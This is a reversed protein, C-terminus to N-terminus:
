VRRAAFVKELASRLGVSLGGMLVAGDGLSSIQVQPPYALWDSLLTRVTDLLGANAGIGGGLVVLGVDTVAAIPVIHLAIRRAEEAVVARAVADGNRAAAFVSRADYPPALATRAGDAFRRTVESLAAACPDLEQELGARVYDLEGAAGNHGRQLEGRLVLGAGLGTGVSLFVFDSVGHAVGLSGEGLAALNVDNEVTVSVGLRDELESGFRRGDLRAVNLALRITGGGAEVVGPVGVVVEEVLSSDLGATEALVDRLQVISELAHDADAVGLEVDQRARVRGALDGLVGRLFRAGLDVSLVLAAEDVPEFYVAGYSPGGPADAAERVLGADLLTQLALSVTPKSIGARRSIQARSIPAGSRITRLVAEENLRKLLPPTAM